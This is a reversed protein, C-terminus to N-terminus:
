PFGPRVATSNKPSRECMRSAGGELISDLVDNVDREFLALRRGASIIRILQILRNPSPIYYEPTVWPVVIGEIDAYEFLTWNRKSSECGGCRAVCDIIAGVHLNGEVDIVLRDESNMRRSSWIPWIGDVYWDTKRVTGSVQEVCLGLPDIVLLPNSSGYEYSNRGGLLGIPDSQIYRGLDPDYDRYYNYHLGTEEHYYQGPFRINLEYRELDGDPDENVAASGFPRYEASWVIEGNADTVVHPTGLHDTHIYKVGTLAVPEPRPVLKVADAALYAGAQGGINDDGMLYLGQYRVGAPPANFEFTGLHAWDGVSIGSHIVRVSTWYGQVEDNIRLLRYWTQVGDNAPKLWKVYVDYSGAQFDGEDVFWRVSRGSFKRNRLYSGNVAASSSREAWRSGTIDVGSGDSDVIIEPPLVAVEDTAPEGLDAVLIGDLYVYEHVANGNGDLEALLEGGTGYVFKRIKSPSSSSVRQGLGDYQYAALVESTQSDAVDLLRNHSSYSYSSGSGGSDAASATNGNADLSYLLSGFSSVRNSMPEYIGTEVQGNTVRSTRNGSKDYSFTTATEETIASSLRDHADYGIAASSFSTEIAMPNDAQDYASVNWDWTGTVNIAVPRHRTDLDITTTKGNGLRWSVPRRLPSYRIEDVLTIESLDSTLLTISSALGGDKHIKVERGSPYVISNLSGQPGYTYSLGGENSIVSIKEGLANWGYDVTHGWGTTISCIRGLGSSCDDYRYTVDYDTGERNIGTLRGAADYTYISALGKADVSRVLQGAANYAHVTTGTEPSEQRVLNGLDDYQYRTSHGEPDTMGSTNGHVDYSFETIVQGVQETRTLRKFDDYTYATTKSKGDVKSALTGNPNFRYGETVGGSSLSDIRSHEDFVRQIVINEGALDSSARTEVIVNGAGDFQYTEWQDAEYSYGYSSLTRSVRSETRYLRRASDYFMRTIVEQGTEDDLIIMSVDGAPTYEWRTRNYNGGDSETMFEVRDNEPHYGYSILVGNPRSESLIKGSASYEIHDRLRLGNPDIVAKLRGRNLGALAEDPHYQFHTRDDVDARPGDTSTIQGFPGGFTSSTTRSVPQGDPDFGSVTERTMEGDDNYTRQTVKHGGSFVSSETIRTIRNRFRPDYEYDVRREDPTDAAQIKFGPQGKSDYNGFRTTVGFSTQSIVNAEEDYVFQTDSLGCGQSCIPGSIGDLVGRRNEIRTQYVTANGLPDLVIREGNEGYRIDVRDADNAHYSAIAMGAQDYEYTAYRVGNEDTIGTLAYPHRLDEYHYERTTGDPNEVFSLRGLIEYGYRWTRGTHDTLSSLRGESDYSFDLSGGSNSEVRALRDDRDYTAIETMGRPSVIEALYGDIDFQEVTMNGDTFQWGGATQELRARIGPSPEFEAGNWSFSIKRGDPRIVKVPDIAPNAPIEVRRDYSHTWYNRFSESVFGLSNHFRTFRIPSLGSQPMDIERQFKNGIALSIPNGVRGCARGEEEGVGEEVDPHEQEPDLDDIDDIAFFDFEPQTEMWRTSLKLTYTGPKSGLHIIAEDNGNADTKSGPGIGYVAANKARRPGTLTGTVSEGAVPYPQEPTDEFTALRFRFPAAVDQNVIGIRSGGYEETLVLEKMEFTMEEGHGGRIVEEVKWTGLSETTLPSRRSEFFERFWVDGVNFYCYGSGSVCPGFWQYYGNVGWEYLREIPERGPITWRELMDEYTIWFDLETTITVDSLSAAPPDTAEVLPCNHFPDAVPGDDIEDLTRCRRVQSGDVYPTYAMVYDHWILTFLILILTISLSFPQKM